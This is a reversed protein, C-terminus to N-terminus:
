VGYGYVYITGGTVTGTNVLLTFDTFQTTTPLVGTSMGSFSGIDSAYGSVTTIKALQPSLVDTNMSLGDVTCTGHYFFASASTSGILSATASFTGGAFQHRYGSSTAGLRLNFFNNTSAVGGSVIIKYNPFTANFANSVTVSSVGTGITQTKILQLGGIGIWASGNYAEIQDNSQNYSVMGDTPTAIASSRAATGAFVMNTQDMLYNQVDSATLVDGATFVKRGLGAM